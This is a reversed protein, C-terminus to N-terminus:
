PSVSEDQDDKPVKPTENPIDRTQDSLHDGWADSLSWVWYSEKGFGQKTAHVSLHRKARRLTSPSIGNRRADDMVRQQRALGDALYDRLFDSADRLESHQEENPTQLLEGPPVNPATPDWTIGGHALEYDLSTAQACVNHKFMALVRRESNQPHKGVVMGLRAAAVFAVAGRTRHMLAQQQNKNLHAIAILTVGHRELLDKIPSLLARVESDKHSDTGGLYASLPDVVVVLPQTDEIAEVLMDLDHKLNLPGQGNADRVGELVGIQSPDGGLRDIRPRVTDAIGDEATMILAKGRPCATGDPWVGGM